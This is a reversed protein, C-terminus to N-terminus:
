SFKDLSDQDMAKTNLLSKAKPPGALHAVSQTVNQSTNSVGAFATANTENQSAFATANTENQVAFATANTENQIAFATANVTENSITAM